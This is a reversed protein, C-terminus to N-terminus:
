KIGDLVFSLIREDPPDAKFAFDSKIKIAVRDKKPIDFQLTFNNKTIKFDHVIADIFVKGTLNPTIKKPYYGSITLTKKNKTALTAHAVAGLWGDDYFGSLKLFMYEQKLNAFYNYFDSKKYMLVEAIVIDPKIEAMIRNIDMANHISYFHIFYLKKFSEKLWSKIFGHVFSDGMILVTKGEKIKKNEIYFTPSIAKSLTKPQWKLAYDSEKKLKYNYEIDKFDFVMNAIKYKSLEKQNYMIAGNKPTATINFDDKTLVKLNPFDKKIRNMMATYGIFGGNKNWHFPDITKYYLLEKDKQALLYPTLNIVDDKGGSVKKIIKALEFSPNEKKATTKTWYQPYIYYKSPPFFLYFKSGKSDIYNRLTDIADKAKKLQETNPPITKGVIEKIVQTHTGKAAGKNTLYLHGQEGFVLDKSQYRKFLFYDLTKKTFLVENRFGLNDNVWNQVEKPIFKEPKKAVGRNELFLVKKPDTNFFLLPLSLLIIFLVIFTKKM